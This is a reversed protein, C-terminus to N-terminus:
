YISGRKHKNIIIKKKKRENYDTSDKNYDGKECTEGQGEWTVVIAEGLDRRRSGVVKETESGAPWGGDTM